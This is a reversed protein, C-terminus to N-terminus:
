LQLAVQAALVHRVFERISAHGYRWGAQKVTSVMTVVEFPSFDVRYKLYYTGKLLLMM